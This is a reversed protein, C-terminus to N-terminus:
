GKWVCHSQRGAHIFVTAEEVGTRCQSEPVNFDAGDGMELLGAVLARTDKAIRLMLGDDIAHSEIVLSDLGHGSSEFTGKMFAGRADREADIDSFAPNHRDILCDRIIEGGEPGNDLKRVVDREIDAARISAVQALELAPVM